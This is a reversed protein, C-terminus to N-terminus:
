SLRAMQGGFPAVHAATLLEFYDRNLLNRTWTV